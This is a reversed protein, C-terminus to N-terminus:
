FPEARTKVVKEAKTKVQEGNRVHNDASMHIGPQSSIHFSWTTNEPQLLFQQGKNKVLKVITSAVQRVQLCGGLKLVAARATKMLFLFQVTSNAQGTPFTLCRGSDIRNDLNNSENKEWLHSVIQIKRKPVRIGQTPGSSFDKASNGFLVWICLAHQVFYPNISLLMQM